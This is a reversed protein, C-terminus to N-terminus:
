LLEVFPVIFHVVDKLSDLSIPFFNIVELEFIWM